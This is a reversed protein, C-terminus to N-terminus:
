KAPSKEWSIGPVTSGINPSRVRYGEEKLTNLCRGTHIDWLKVTHDASGSALMNGEHSFAVSWLRNTHGEFTKLHEGTHIDLLIVKHDDTGIVLKDEDLRCAISRVVHNREQWSKLCESTAAVVNM